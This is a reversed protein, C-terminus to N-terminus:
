RRTDGKSPSGLISREVDSLSSPDAKMKEAVLAKSANVVLWCIWKHISKAKADDISRKPSMLENWLDVVGKSPLEKCMNLLVRGVDDSIAGPQSTVLSIVQKLLDEQSLSKTNDQM